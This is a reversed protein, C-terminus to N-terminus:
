ISSSWTYPIQPDNLDKGICEDPDHQAPICNAILSECAKEGRFSYWVNSPIKLLGYGEEPGIVVEDIKGRTPSGERDDFVVFRVKGHPVTLSQSIKLHKKWGKVVEKFITSFYVEGFGDFFEDSAKLMHKVSGLENNFQKLPIFNLDHINFQHEVKDM